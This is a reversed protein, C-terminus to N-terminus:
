GKSAGLLWRMNNDDNLYFQGGLITDDIISIFLTGHKKMFDIDVDYAPLGKAM